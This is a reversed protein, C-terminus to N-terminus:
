VCDDAPVDAAHFQQHVVVLRQLGLDVRALLVEGRADREAAFQEVPLVVRRGLDLLLEDLQRGLARLHHAPPLVSPLIQM